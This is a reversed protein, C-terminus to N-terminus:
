TGGSAAACIAIPLRWVDDAGAGRPSDDHRGGAGARSARRRASSVARRGNGRRSPRSPAPELCDDSFRRAAERPTRRTPASGRPDQDERGFHGYAATKADIPRRLDLDQLIAGRRPRLAGAGAGGASGDSHPRHRPRPGRHSLHAVGIAYAVIVQGDTPWARRLSTRRSTAAVYAASRDVEDPGQRSRAAVTGRLVGYTDVIIKRGTLGNDGM